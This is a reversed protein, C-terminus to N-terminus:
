STRLIVFEEPPLNQAPTITIAKKRCFERCLGCGSCAAWNFRLKKLGEQWENKLAGTPCMGVCAWCFNCEPGVDLHCFLTLLLGQREPGVRDLAQRLADTKPIASKAAASERNGAEDEERLASWTEGAAHFSVEKFARFFARRSGAEAAAAQGQGQRPLPRGVAPSITALLSSAASQDPALPGASGPQASGEEPRAPGNDRSQLPAVEDGALLHILLSDAAPGLRARLQALRARLIEPVAAARCQPCQGIRLSLDNTLSAFAALEELSLGGLCPLIIEQGTRISKECCLIVSQGTKAPLRALLTAARRDQIELAHAPCVAACALCGVCKEQDIEVKGAALTIAGAPCERRCRECASARYRNRLCRRPKFELTPAAAPRLRAFFRAALTM